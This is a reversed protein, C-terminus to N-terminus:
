DWPYGDLQNESSIANDNTEHTCCVVPEQVEFFCVDRRIDFPHRILRPLFTTCDRVRRCIGQEPRSFGNKVPPIICPDGIALDDVPPFVFDRNQAFGVGVLCLLLTAILLSPLAIHRAM